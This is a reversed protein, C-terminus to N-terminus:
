IIVDKVKEEVLLEYDPSISGIVERKDNLFEFTFIIKGPGQFLFGNHVLAFSLNKRLSGKDQKKAVGESIIQETGDYLIKLRFSSPDEDELDIKAFIGLKMQKPWTDINDPTVNFIIRDDYLGILSHKSGIEFRIDDCIIFTKIKM